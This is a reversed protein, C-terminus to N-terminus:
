KPKISIMSIMRQLTIMKMEELEASEMQSEMVAIVKTASRGSAATAMPFLPASPCWM